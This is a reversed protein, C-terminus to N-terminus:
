VHDQPVSEWGRHEITVRTQDGVAEFRVEVETEHEPGFTAARWGVVLKEGPAWCRVKGVEYVKGSTLKEVLRGGEGSANPAEFAMVGPSRPTLKFFPRYIWWQSIEETFAKFAGLPSASVRLSVVVRSTM